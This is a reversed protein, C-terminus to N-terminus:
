HGEQEVFQAVFKTVDSNNGTTSFCSPPETAKPTRSANASM